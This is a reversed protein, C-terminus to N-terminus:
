RRRKRVRVRVAFVTACAAAAMLVILVAFSATDGTKVAVVGPKGTPAGSESSGSAKKTTVTVSAPVSTNGAKDYARVEIRYTTGARLNKILAKTTDVTGIREGDVRIEYGAVGVNDESAKWSIVVSNEKVDSIKLDAPQTPATKDGEDPGPEAEANKLAEAKDQLEQIMANMEAKSITQEMMEEAAKIAANFNDKETGDPYQSQDLKKAEAIASELATKDMKESKMAETAAALLAEAEDILGQDDAALAERASQLAETFATKAGGNWYADLETEIKEAEAILAELDATDAEAVTVTATLKTDDYITTGTITVTGKGTGTVVGNDDVTAVNEDDSEWIIEPLIVGDPVNVTLPANEGIRLKLDEVTVGETSVTKTVFPIIEAISGEGNNAQLIVIQLYKATKTEGFTQTVRASNAQQAEDLVIPESWGSETSLDGPANVDIPTDSIRYIFKQIIGNRESGSRQLLDFGSIAADDGLDIQIVAPNSESLGKGWPFDWNTGANGDLVREIGYGDYAKNVEATMEGRPLEITEGDAVTLNFVTPEAEGKFNVTVTANGAGLALLKNDDTVKIVTEDSSVVSEIMNLNGYLDITDGLVPTETELTVYAATEDVTIKLNDLVFDTQGMSGSGARGGNEYLGIWTQGSGSGVVTMEVHKTTSTAELYETPTMYTTGDGVVMAYAAPGAQYDFEVKYVKGPEFRFNQPITQYIIGTNAGHHKLSWEGGKITGDTIVDDIVRGNWGKQTYPAHLQSLHTVPDTVGQASGLVFPYLGQVVSEFDQVFSGDEQINNLTKEVIRIDDMATTGSGAERALTLVASESEAKFPVQIWQMYTGHEEDCQVYNWAISRVTYESVEESGTNVKIWAKADSENAVYIEAVYDKDPELDSIVTSVAVDKTPSEFYLTQDGTNDKRVVVSSDTIDGSWEQASLSEGTGAYGNFGPDTVYDAEGFDAELTKVAEGKTVVYATQAKLDGLTLFDGNGPDVQQNIRGRDSLEYVIVNALGSWSDQLEWTTEGGNVNWHYLKESGDDNDTWPLLYTSNSTDTNLVTKGNLTITREIREDSRQGENRTVVVTDRDTYAVDDDTIEKLTIQKEPNGVPSEGEEYDEWDVVYYHQLFRTPLNQDFTQLIYNNFSQDGGWGEFGYLRYGGLLPNDATGGFSPYNLVQSDRQDNRIFRIIESNYGKASAGGYSADTSWHQWTSDYEGEASFETTFRWGLSNIEKAVQRTEWADQYWVDLYIFDMNDARSEADKQIEEMTATIEGKSDEVYEGKDWDRNYFETGNIRDYLQILRKYRAQTSLDWLKNIVFSQDLWGWGNTFPQSLMDENFSKSEPYSEQANIHIGIETNYDHAIRILDQFDEVGGEREAIDAYESNASDHGENGYGKLMVAQPLGDTALYVKKINDATELYPNPAMSAFNMVIRYNVADKITDSGYAVHMIDRYAIVGDNWDITGDENLDGGIAVKACPLESVPFEKGSAQGNKDGAEYYWAASTLSITDAGNNREVRKDGEIESNSFLGASLKDTSLFAYLYGGTESPSFGEDFTIFSDAPATTTTSAKAGDFRAGEDVADVSLLNLQPIDITAIKACGDNKEFDTVEWTLTNDEVSVKVSLDVDIQADRDEAHLKYTKATDTQDGATVTPAIETGNIEITNLGTENGRFFLGDTEVGGELMQYRAVVPFEKGIYVKMTDSQISDYKTLDLEAKPQLQAEFFNDGDETVEVVAEYAQYGPMTVAMNYSGVQLKKEFTYSGDAGTKAAYTGFRVTAGELPEGAEDTIKGSVQRTTTYTKTVTQGSRDSCFGWNDEMCNEGNYTFDAFSIQGDNTKVGFKGKGANQNMFSILNQNTVRVTKDNVTVALTENNLSLTMNIEDGAEFEPLGTIGPYSGSGNLNYQYYWGSTADKGIYLWNNDDVYTYFVGWNTGPKLALSIEGGSAMTRDQDLLLAPGNGSYNHGGAAGAKINYWARGEEPDSPEGGEGPGEGSGTDIEAEPEWVQGALEPKYLAWGTYDVSANDVKVDSFYVETLQGSYAGAGMGIKGQLDKLGTFAANNAVAEGSQGTTENEVSIHLGDDEYRGSVIVEDNQNIGPLGSLDPYGTTENKFEYFWHGNGNNDPTGDYAIYGWHTDDAYKTVIRLRTESKASALRIRYSFQEGTYNGDSLVFAEPNSSGFHGNGNGSGAKLHAMTVPAALVDLSPLHALTMGLVMALALFGAALKSFYKKM